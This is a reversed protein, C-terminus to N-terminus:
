DSFLRRDLAALLRDYILVLLLTAAASALVFLGISYQPLGMTEFIIMPLRQLIYCLFVHKGLWALASNGIRVRMLFVNILLMLLVGRLNELLGDKHRYSRFLTLMLVAIGLVALAAIWGRLGSTRKEISQRIDPYILGFWYVFITNYWYNDKLLFFIVWYVASLLFCVLCATKQSRLYRFSFYTAIYLYLIAFLYWNSNGFSKLFILSLLIHGPSYRQGLLLQVVFFLPLILLFHLYTRLIRRKPMARLYAEGKRGIACRIGYGSYFLFPVVVMQGIRSRIISYGRTLLNPPLEIYQSIHSAFVLLVFLGKIMTTQKVSLAEEMQDPSRKGIGIMALIAVSVYLFLM